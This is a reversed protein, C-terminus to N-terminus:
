ESYFSLLPCIKVEYDNVLDFLNGCVIVVYLKVPM